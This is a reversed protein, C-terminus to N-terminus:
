VWINWLQRGMERTQPSEGGDREREAWFDKRFSIGSEWYLGM